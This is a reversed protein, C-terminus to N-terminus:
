GSRRAAAPADLEPVGIPRAAVVGEAELRALEARSLGLEGCLIEQNGEGFDPARRRVCPGAAPERWVWGHCRWSGAAPHSVPEYFGRAALQPDELLERMKWVPGSPVGRARCREFVEAKALARTWEAVRADIEARAACRSSADSWEPRDAWAPGGMALRLGDWEAANRVAIAIWEDDGACPYVDHPAMEPHQNGRVAPQRRHMCWEAFAEGLLATAVERQALDVHQGVGTRRRQLLACLVAAAGAVAAVPDGYAYSALQPKGDGYGTIGALGSTQEIMPGYGPLDREPGTLGFGAM